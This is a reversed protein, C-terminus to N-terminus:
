RTTARSRLCTTTPNIGDEYKKLFEDAKATYDSINAICSDKQSNDDVLLMKVANFRIRQYYVAANGAYDLGLTNEEYLLKDAKEINSPNILGVIGVVGAILAVILFSIVLKM